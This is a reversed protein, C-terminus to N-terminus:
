LTFFKQAEAFLAEDGDPAFAWALKSPTAIDFAADLKSHYNLALALQEENAITCELKGAAVEDLLNSVTQGHRAEWHLAPLKQQAERLAAEQASGAAIAIT